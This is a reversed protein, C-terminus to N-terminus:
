LVFKGILGHAAMGTILRVVRQGRSCVWETPPGPNSIEGDVQRQLQIIDNSFFSHQGLVVIIDFRHM